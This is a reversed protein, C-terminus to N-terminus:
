AIWQATSPMSALREAATAATLGRLRAATRRPAPSSLLATASCLGGRRRDRSAAAGGCVRSGGAGGGKSPGEARDGFRCESSPRSGQSMAAALSIALGLAALPATIKSHSM